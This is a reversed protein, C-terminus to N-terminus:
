KKAPQLRLVRGKPNDTVMYINGDPGASTGFASARRSRDAAAEGVVADGKLVLRTLNTPDKQTMGGVFLNGRWAPFASGTYFMMGSPAIVPDWYYIPQEM